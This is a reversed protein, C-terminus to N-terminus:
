SRRRRLVGAAPADAVTGLCERVVAAAGQRGSGRRRGTRGGLEAGSAAAGDASGAPNLMSVRSFTDHRPIGNKLTLVGTAEVGRHMRLGRNGRVHPRQHADDAAGDGADRASAHRKANSAEPEEVEQFIALLEKMEDDACVGFGFATARNVCVVGGTTFDIWSKIRPQAKPSLGPHGNFLARPPTSQNPWREVEGTTGASYAPHSECLRHILLVARGDRFRHASVSKIQPAQGM